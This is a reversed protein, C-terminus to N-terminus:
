RVVRALTLVRIPGWGAQKLTKSCEAATNGTTYIDDVLIIPKDGPSELPAPLARFAGKLNKARFKQDLGMQPPTEKIKELLNQSPWNLSLALSQALTQSLTTARDRARDKQPPVWTLIPPVLSHSILTKQGFSLWPEKIEKFLAFRNEFKILRITQDIPSHYPWLSRASEFGLRRNKCKPCQSVVTDRVKTPHGCYLCPNELPKAKQFCPQCIPGNENACTICREDFILRTLEKFFQKM